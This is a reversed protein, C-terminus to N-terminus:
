GGYEVCFPRAPVQLSDAALAGVPLLRGPLGSELRSSFKFHDRARNGQQGQKPRECVLRYHERAQYLYAVFRDAESSELLAVLTSLTDQQDQAAPDGGCPENMTYYCSARKFALSPEDPIRILADMVNIKVALDATDLPQGSPQEGHLIFLLVLFFGTPQHCNLKHHGERIM